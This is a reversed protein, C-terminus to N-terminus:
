YGRNKKYIEGTDPKICKGQSWIMACIFLTIPITAFLSYRWAIHNACFGSGVIVVWIIAALVIVIYKCTVKFGYWATPM